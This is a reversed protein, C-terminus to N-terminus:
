GKVMVDDDFDDDGDDDDFDIMSSQISQVEFVREM